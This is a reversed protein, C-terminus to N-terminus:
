AEPFTEMFYEYITHDYNSEFGCYLKALEDDSMFINLIDSYPILTGNKLRVSGTLERENNKWVWSIYDWIMHRAQINPWSEMRLAFARLLSWRVDPNDSAMKLSDMTKEFEPVPLYRQYEPFWKTTHSLFDLDMVDRPAWTDCKTTVGISTWVKAVAEGTFWTIWSESVTYSNDDGCMAAETHRMLNTYNMRRDEIVDIEHEISDVIDSNVYAGVADLSELHEFLEEHRLEDSSFLLDHIEIAAYCFKRFLGITNDVITCNQGSPNGTDKVIVDGEPTVM